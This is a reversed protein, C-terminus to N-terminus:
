GSQRRTVCAPLAVMETISSTWKSESARPEYSARWRTWTGFSVMWMQKSDGFYDTAEPFPSVATPGAEQQWGLEIDCLSLGM